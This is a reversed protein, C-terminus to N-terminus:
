WGEGTDGPRGPWRCRASLPKRPAQHGCPCGAQGPGKTASGPGKQGRSESCTDQKLLKITKRKCKHCTRLQVLTKLRQDVRCQLPGPTPTLTHPAEPRLGAAPCVQWQPHYM